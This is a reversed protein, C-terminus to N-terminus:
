ELRKMKCVLWGLGLSPSQSKESLLHCTWPRFPPRSSGVAAVAKNGPRRGWELCKAGPLSQEGLAPARKGSIEGQSMMLAAGPFHCITWGVPGVNPLAGRSDWHCPLCSATLRLCSPAFFFGYQYWSILSLCLSFSPSLSVSASVSGWICETIDKM